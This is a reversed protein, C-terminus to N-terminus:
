FGTLFGTSITLLLDAAACTRSTESLKAATGRGPLSGTVHAVDHIGSAFDCQCPRDLRDLHLPEPELHTAHLDRPVSCLSSGRQMNFWSARLLRVKPQVSQSAVDHLLFLQLLLNLERPQHLSGCLSCFLHQTLWRQKCSRAILLATCFNKPCALLADPEYAWLVCCPPTHHREQILPHRLLCYSQNRIKIKNTSGRWPCSKRTKHVAHGLVRAKSNVPRGNLRTLM